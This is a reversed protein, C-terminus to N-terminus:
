LERLEGAVVACALDTTWKRCLGSEVELALDEGDFLVKLFLRNSSETVFLQGPSLRSFKTWLKRQEPFRVVKLEAVSM